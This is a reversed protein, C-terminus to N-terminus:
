LIAFYPVGDYFLLSAFEILIYAVQQVLFKRILIALVRANSITVDRKIEAGSLQCGM